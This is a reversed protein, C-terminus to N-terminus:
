FLASADWLYKKVRGKSSMADIGLTAFIREADAPQIDHCPVEVGGIVGWFKGVDRYGEPVKKQHPKSAHCATYRLAGDEEEIMELAVGARLHKLDGSGVIDFWWQSFMDQVHGVTRYTRVGLKNHRRTREVLPGLEHLKLSLLIHFHPAGRKQFELFWVGQITSYKRVIRMKFAKFHKKVTRGNKDWDKPYTLTAMCYFTCSANFVTHRLRYMAKQSFEGIVGRIGGMGYTGVAVGRPLSKTVVVDRRYLRITSVSMDRAAISHSVLRSVALPSPARGSAADGAGNPTEDM